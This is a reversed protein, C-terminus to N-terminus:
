MHPKIFQPFLTAKKSNIFQTFSCAILNSCMVKWWVLSQYYTLCGIKKEQLSLSTLNPNM